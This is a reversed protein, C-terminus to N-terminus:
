EIFFPERKKEKWGLLIIGMRQNVHEELEDDFHRFRYTYKFEGYDSNLITYKDCMFLLASMRRALFYLIDIVGIKGM